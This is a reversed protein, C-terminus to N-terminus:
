RISKWTPRFGVAKLAPSEVGLIYECRRNRLEDTEDPTAVLLSQEGLGEFYIPLRLGRKRFWNSISQARSQSLKLNYAANGVTDTHGVIFLKIAGVERHKTLADNILKLSAELKPAEGATVVASDTAFNVEEHPITVSWPTLTYLYSAGETDFSRVEIRGIDAGPDPWTVTLAEGPAHGTFKQEHEVLPAEGGIGFVKVEVHSPSHNMRIEVTRQSLARSKDIEVRLPSGARAPLSVLLGLLLTQIFERRV